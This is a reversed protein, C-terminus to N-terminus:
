ILVETRTTAADSAAGQQEEFRSATLYVRYWRPDPATRDRGENL